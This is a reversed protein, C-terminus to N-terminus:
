QGIASATTALGAIGLTALCGIFLWGAQDAFEGTIVATAGLIALLAGTVVGVARM